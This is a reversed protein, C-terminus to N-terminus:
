PTEVGNNCNHRYQKHMQQETGDHPGNGHGNMMGQGNAGHMQYGTGDMPPTWDEDQCNPIGDGDADHANAENPCTSNDAVLTEDTSVPTTDAAVEDASVNQMLMGSLLLVGLLAFATIGLIKSKQKM